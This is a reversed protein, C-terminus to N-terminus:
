KFKVEKLKGTQQKKQLPFRQKELRDIQTIQSDHVVIEVSGYEIGQLSQVIRDIWQQDIQKEGM